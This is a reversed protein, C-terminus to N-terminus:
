RQPPRRAWGLTFGGPQYDKPLHDDPIATRNGDRAAVYHPSMIEVGAENFADQIHAHLRSYIAAMEAPQDTHANLEYRVYFDDLATQLVFPAPEAQLGETRRAAAILVVLV